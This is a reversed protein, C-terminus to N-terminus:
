LIGAESEQTALYGTDTSSEKTPWPTSIRSDNKGHGVHGTHYDWLTPIVPLVLRFM